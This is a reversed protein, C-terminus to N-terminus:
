SVIIVFAVHVLKIRSTFSMPRISVRVSDERNAADHTIWLYAQYTVPEDPQFRVGQKRIQRARM